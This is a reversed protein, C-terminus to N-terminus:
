NPEVQMYVRYEPLATPFSIRWSGWGYTTPLFMHGTLTYVSSAYITTGADRGTCKGNTLSTCTPSFSLTLNAAKLGPPLRTSATVTSITSSDIVHPHVAVWRVADRTVSLVNMYAIFVIAFQICAMTFVLLLPLFVALEVVSQGRQVWGGRLRTAHLRARRRLHRLLGSM